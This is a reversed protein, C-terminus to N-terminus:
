FGLKKRVFILAVLNWFVVSLFSAWAAGVLGYAPILFINGVVNIVTSVMIIWMFAKQYGTMSLLYGISGAAANFFQAFVLISLGEKSAPNECDFIGLIFSDLGIVVISGLLAGIAIFLTSAQVLVKLKALDKIAYLAAFKPALVANLITLPLSVTMALKVIVSYNGVVEFNTFKTLMLIDVHGAIIQFFSTTLMPLSLLMLNLVKKDTDKPVETFSPKLKSRILVISLVSSILMAVAMLPVVIGESMFAITAIGLVLFFLSNFFTQMLAYGKIWGFSRSGEACIM